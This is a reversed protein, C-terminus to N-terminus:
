MKRRHSMLERYTMGPTVIVYLLVSKMEAVTSVVFESGVLESRLLGLGILESAILGSEATQLPPSLM